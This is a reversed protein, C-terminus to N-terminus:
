EQPGNVRILKGALTEEGAIAENIRTALREFDPDETCVIIGAHDPQLIHLRMFDRRNRTLVARENSVAFALVEEDPIRLNAKGAERATLVDHGFSRIFEVVPLPFNEDTYLNAM